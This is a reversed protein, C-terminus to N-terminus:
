KFMEKFDSFIKKNYNYNLIFVMIIGIFISIAIKLYFYYPLHILFSSLMIVMKVIAISIISIMAQKFIQLHYEWFNVGCLRKVLFYWNAVMGIPFSFILMSWCIGKLGWWSGIYITLPSFLGVGLVWWFGWNAKGRALLLSGVPNGTSRIAAWIALIPLLPIATIWKQGYLLTIIEHSFIFIFSYIPFNISCLYNITKKYVMKLLITKNQTKAMAPFTARTIIPNIIMAPYMVLQKVINYMGLQTTGLLNGILIVDFQYTFYNITREGMQYLGFKLFFKIEKIKFHFQLNYHLIGIIFFQIAQLVTAFVIGWALAYYGFGFCVMILSITFTLLNNIIEIVAITKFDMEKQRLISFLQGLPQILLTLGMLLILQTLRPEHYFKAIIPSIMAVLSYVIVGAIINLWFLSSLADNEIEKKHIIANSIGFDSFIQSFGIVVTALAILGFDYPDLFRVLIMMQILSLCCKTVTSITSWKLANFTKKRFNM